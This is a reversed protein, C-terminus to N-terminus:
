NKKHLVKILWREKLFKYYFYYSIIFIFICSIAYFIDFEYITNAYLYTLSAITAITAVFSKISLITATAKIEPILKDTFEEPFYKRYSIQFGIIIAPIAMLFILIPISLTEIDFVIEEGLELYILGYLTLIFILVALSQYFYFMKKSIKRVKFM